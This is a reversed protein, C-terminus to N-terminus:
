SIQMLEEIQINSLVTHVRGHLGRIKLWEKGTKDQNEKRKKQHPVHAIRGGIPYHPTQTWGRARKISHENQMAAHLALLIIKGLM